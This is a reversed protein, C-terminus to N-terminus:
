VASAVWVTIPILKRIQPGLRCVCLEREGEVLPPVGSAKPMASAANAGLILVLFCFVLPIMFRTRM